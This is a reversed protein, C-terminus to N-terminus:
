LSVGAEARRLMNLVADAGASSSQAVELPSRADLLPHPRTLFREIAARDGHYARSVADVVRSVEYLRESMERSLRGRRTRARRLTAEPILPGVVHARGIAESLSAAASPKLGRAIRDALRIDDLPAEGEFGLLRGIRVALSAPPGGPEAYFDLAAM